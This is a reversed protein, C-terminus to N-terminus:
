LNAMELLVGIIAIPAAIFVLPFLPLVLIVGTLRVWGRPNDQVARITPIAVWFAVDLVRDAYTTM